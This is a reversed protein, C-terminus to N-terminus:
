QLKRKREKRPDIAFPNMEANKKRKQRNREKKQKTENSRYLINQMKNM